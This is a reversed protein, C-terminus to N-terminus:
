KFLNLSALFATGKGESSMYSIDIFSSIYSTYTFCIFFYRMLYLTKKTIASYLRSYATFLMKVCQQCILM